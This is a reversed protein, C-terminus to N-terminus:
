KRRLVSITRTLLKHVHLHHEELLDFGRVQDVGVEKQHMLVLSSGPRMSAKVAPLFRDLLERTKLGRTSSARGYPVDTAVADLRALPMYTSDGRVVGLWEQGFHKMNSICGKVMSGAQDLAVVRAGVMSAEITISGTGAFPDLFVEGSKCGTMNVLARSLKPFIAAPHFFARKRPRRLSWGQVMTGPSTVALYEEGARVLTLEVEPNRLDVQADIGRLYKEPDPPPLGDVLDFARFRVRKGEMMPAAEEPGAVAVGVRRSFAIRSGILFPDARSDALLLRPVPSSFKSEEDYAAFLSRAEAAPITTGEGSLLALAKNKM